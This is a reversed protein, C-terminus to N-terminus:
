EVAGPRHGEAGRLAGFLSHQAFERSCEGLQEHPAAVADAGDDVVAGLLPGDRGPLAAPLDEYEQVVQEAGHAPSRHGVEALQEVVGRSEHAAPREHHEDGIEYALGPPLTGEQAQGLPM